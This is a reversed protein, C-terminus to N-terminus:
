VTNRGRALANAPRTDATRGSPLSAKWIESAPAGFCQKAPLRSYQAIRVNPSEFKLVSNLAELREILPLQTLDRGQYVLLDFIFYCIRSAQSRSHQLMNFNPRSADDLAVIEGDIVTNKPLENLAEIIKPYQRNFSKRKRSYFNLKGNVNIALARYGDLKIEYVWEAGVPLKAVAFCEMPEVFGAERSPLSDLSRM